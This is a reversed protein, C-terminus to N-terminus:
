MEHSLTVEIHTHADIFGPVVTRGGADFSSAGRARSKVDNTAGVHTIRGNRVLIAEATPHSPDMTLVRGNVIALDGGLGRPREAQAAVSEKEALVSAARGSGLVAGFAAAGRLLDRRRM